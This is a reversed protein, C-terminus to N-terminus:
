KWSGLAYIFESSLITGTLCGELLGKKKGPKEECLDPFGLRTNELTSVM